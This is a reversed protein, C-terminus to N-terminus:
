DVHVVSLSLRNFAKGVKGWGWLGENRSGVQRFNLVDLVYNVWLCKKWRGDWRLILTSRRKVTFLEVQVTKMEERSICEM